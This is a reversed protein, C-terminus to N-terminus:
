RFEARMYSGLYDLQESVSAKSTDFGDFNGM